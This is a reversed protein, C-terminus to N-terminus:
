RLSRVAGRGIGYHFFAILNFHDQKYSRPLPGPSGVMKLTRLVEDDLIKSGSSELVKVEEIEGKRNFTIRVPTVGEIGLRAAEEPYHWVGYVQTEFRHLFSGFMIDDTNLFRTDGEEVDSEFKERYAEEMREMKGASPFLRAIDTRPRSKPKFLDTGAPPAPQVPRRVPIEGQESPAPRSPAERTQQPTNQAQSPPSLRPLVRAAPPPLFRDLASSARPATEKQVRQTREAVRPAKDKVPPPSKLEPLDQLDVMLPENAPKKPATPLAEFLSYFLIHLLLSLLALWLLKKELYSDSM